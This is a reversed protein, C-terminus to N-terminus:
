LVQTQNDTHAIALTFATQHDAARTLLAPTVISGSQLGSVCALRSVLMLRRELSLAKLTRASSPSINQAQQRMTVIWRVILLPSRCTQILNGRPAALWWYARIVRPASTGDIPTGCPVGDRM